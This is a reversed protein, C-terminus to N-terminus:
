MRATTPSSAGPTQMGGAACTLRGGSPDYCIHYLMGGSQAPTPETGGGSSLERKQFISM